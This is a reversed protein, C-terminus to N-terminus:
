FIWYTYKLGTVDQPVDLVHSGQAQAFHNYLLQSILYLINGLPDSKCVQTGMICLPFCGQSFLCSFHRYFFFIGILFVILGIPGEWLLSTKLFFLWSLQQQQPFHQDEKSSSSEFFLFFVGLSILNLFNSFLCFVFGSLLQNSMRILWLPVWGATQLLLSKEFFFFFRIRHKMGEKNM